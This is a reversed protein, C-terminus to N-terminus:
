VDLPPACNPMRNVQAFWAMSADLPEGDFGTVRFPEDAGNRLLDAYAERNRLLEGWDALWQTVLATDHEGVPELARLRVVLDAVIENGQDLFTAREQPSRAESAFPVDEMPALAEECVRDAEEAFAANDLTAPPERRSWPSAAYLWMVVFAAIVLAVAMKGITLRRAVSTEPRPIEPQESM